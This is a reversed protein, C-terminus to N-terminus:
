RSAGCLKRDRLDTVQGGHHQWLTLSMETAWPSLPATQERDGEREKRWREGKRQGRGVSSM